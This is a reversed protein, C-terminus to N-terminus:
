GRKGTPRQHRREHIFYNRKIIKKLFIKIQRWTYKSSSVVVM